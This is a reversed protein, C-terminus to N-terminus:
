ALGRQELGWLHYEGEERSRLVGGGSWLLVGLLEGEGEVAYLVGSVEAGDTAYCVPKADPVYKAAGVGDVYEIGFCDLGGHSSDRSDFDM